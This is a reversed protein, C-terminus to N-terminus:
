GEGRLDDTGIRRASYAILFAINTLAHHLHHIGSEDDFDEGAKFALLHRQTAAYLRGWEMGKQWNNPGYKDAGYTLVDALANIAEHPILDHRRKGSDFKIGETTVVTGDQMTFKDQIDRLDPEHQGGPRLWVPGTLLEHKEKAKRWYADDGRGSM